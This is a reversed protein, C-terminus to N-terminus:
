NVGRCGNDHNVIKYPTIQGRLKIIHQHLFDLGVPGCLSTELFSQLM